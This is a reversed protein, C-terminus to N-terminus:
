IGHQGSTKTLFDFAKISSAHDSRACISSWQQSSCCFFRLLTTTCFVVMKLPKLWIGKRWRSFVWKNPNCSIRRPNQTMDVRHAKQTLCSFPEPEAGSCNGYWHLMLSFIFRYQNRHCDVFYKRVHKQTILTSKCRTPSLRNVPLPKEPPRKKKSVSTFKQNLFDPYARNKRHFNEANRRNINLRGWSGLISM